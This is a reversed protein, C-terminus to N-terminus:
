GLHALSCASTSHMRWEDDSLYAMKTVDVRTAYVCVCDSEM